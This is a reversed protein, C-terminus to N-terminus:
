IYVSKFIQKVNNQCFYSVWQLIMEGVVSVDLAAIFVLSVIFNFSCNWHCKELLKM